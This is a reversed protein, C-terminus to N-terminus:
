KTETEVSSKITMIHNEMDVVEQELINIKNNLEERVTANELVDIEVELKNITEYISDFDMQEIEAILNKNIDEFKSVESSSLNLNKIKEDLENENEFIQKKAKFLENSLNNNTNLSKKYGEALETYKSQYYLNMAIMAILVVILLGILAFNINQKM